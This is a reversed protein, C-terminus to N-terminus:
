FKVENLLYIGQRQQEKQSPRTHPPRPRIFHLNREQLHLGRCHHQGSNGTQRPRSHVTTPPHQCTGTSDTFLSQLM